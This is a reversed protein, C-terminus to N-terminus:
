LPLLSLPFLRDPFHRGLQQLLFRLSTVIEDFKWCCVVVGYKEPSCTVNRDPLSSIFDRSCVSHNGTLLRAGSGAGRSLAQGAAQASGAM